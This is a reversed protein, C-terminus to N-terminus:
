SDGGSADHIPCYSPSTPWYPVPCYTVWGFSNKVIPPSEPDYADMDEDDMVEEDMTGTPDEPDYATPNRPTNPPTAPDYPRTDVVEANPTEPDYEMPDM